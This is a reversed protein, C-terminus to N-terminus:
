ESNLPEEEELLETAHPMRTSAECTPQGMTDPM